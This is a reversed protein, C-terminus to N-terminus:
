PSRTQGSEADIISRGSLPEQLRVSVTAVTGVDACPGADLYRRIVVRLAVSSAREETEVREFQECHPDGVEYTITLRRGDASIRSLQWATGEEQEDSACGAVAAAAVLSLLIVFWRNV